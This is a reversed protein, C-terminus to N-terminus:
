KIMKYVRDGQRVIILGTASEDVRRGDITYYEAPLMPNFGDDVGDTVVTDIGSSVKTGNVNLQNIEWAPCINSNSTYRFSLRVKKGCYESLDIPSITLFSWSNGAPWDVLENISKSVGDVIISVTLCDKPSTYFNVAHSFRVFAVDVGSLDIEPTVLTGDCDYRIGDIYGNAVWGYKNDRRWVATKGTPAAATEETVGCDDSLFNYAVISPLRDFNDPDTPDFDDDDDGSGGTGPDYNGDAIVTRKPDFAINTSDGWLYEFLNPFDIFPNRNGQLSYVANNRDIEVQSVRDKRCWQSYLKAAWSKLAPYTSNDLFKESRSTWSTGQWCTIMYMYGRSFDGKYEDVPEWAKEVVNAGNGLKTFGDDSTPSPVYDMCYNSKASNTSNDSPYLNFLDNYISTKGGGWWSSPFSHEINMEVYNGKSNKTGVNDKQPRSGREGVLFKLNSYRNRYTGDPLQDTIYFGWWTKNSGPGYGLTAPNKIINHIATKLEEGKLGSLSDYYGQPIAAHVDSQMAPIMVAMATLIKYFKKM